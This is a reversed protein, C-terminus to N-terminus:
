GKALEDGYVRYSLALYRVVQERLAHARADCRGREGADIVGDNAISKALEAFLESLRATIEQCEALLDGNDLEDGLPPLQLYVGGLERAMATVFHRGGTMLQIMVLEEPRLTSGKYGALKHRLGQASGCVDRSLSEQTGPWQEVDSRIADNLSM